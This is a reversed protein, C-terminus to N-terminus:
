LADDGEEGTRIHVVRPLDAVIVIGDGPLNTRGAGLISSVIADVQHDSCFVELKMYRPMELVDPTAEYAGGRGKGRGQGWCESITLGPFHPLGHLADIVQQSLAKKVIAKIEKM